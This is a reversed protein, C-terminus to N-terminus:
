SDSQLKQLVARFRYLRGWLESTIADEPRTWDTSGPFRYGAEEADAEFRALDVTPYDFTLVLLGDPKLTRHFERLSALQDAPSLHELVSICFITDFM